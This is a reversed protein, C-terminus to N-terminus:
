PGQIAAILTGQAPPVSGDEAAPQSKDLLIVPISEPLEVVLTVRRGRGRQRTVHVTIVADGIQISERDGRGYRRTKRKSM